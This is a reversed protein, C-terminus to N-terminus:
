ENNVVNYSPTGSRWINSVNAVAIAILHEYIM